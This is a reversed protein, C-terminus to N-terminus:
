STATSSTRTWAPDHGLHSCRGRRSARTGANGVATSWPSCTNPELECLGANSTPADKVPGYRIALVDWCRSRSHAKRRSCYCDARLEILDVIRGEDAILQLCSSTSGLLAQRRWWHALGIHDRTVPHRLAPLLIAAPPPRAIRSAKDFFLPVPLPYYTSPITGGTTGPLNKVQGQWAPTCRTVARHCKMDEDVCGRATMTDTICFLWTSSPSREPPVARLLVIRIGTCRTSRGAAASTRGCAWCPTIAQM